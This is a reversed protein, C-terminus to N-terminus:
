SLLAVAGLALYVAGTLGSMRHQAGASRLRAALGGALMTYAGDCALALVVVCSGLLLTQAAVPGRAPDVFQPLFALFFLCTKPNLLDIVLGDRFLRSPSRAGVVGARAPPHQSSRHRLLLLQRAGLYLLFAGGALRLATLALDSSAVLAAVGATAAVVHLALGSELGLVSWLGAARGQEVTRAVAYVVSPGPVALLVLAALCFAAFMELTPM